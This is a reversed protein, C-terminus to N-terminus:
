SEIEALRESEDGQRDDGFVFGGSEESDSDESDHSDSEIPEIWEHGCEECWALLEDDGVCEGTTHSVRADEDRVPYEHDCEQRAQYEAERKAELADETAWHLADAFAEHADDGYDMNELDSPSVSVDFEVGLRYEHGFEDTIEYVAQSIMRQEDSEFPKAM